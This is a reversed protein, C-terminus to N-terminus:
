PRTTGISKMPKMLDLKGMSLVFIPSTTVLWSSSMDFKKAWGSARAYPLPGSSSLFSPVGSGRIEWLVKEPLRGEDTIITSSHVGYAMPWSRASYSCRVPTCPNMQPILLKSWNPTSNPLTSPFFTLFCSESLRLAPAAIEPNLGEVVRKSLFHTLNLQRYVDHLWENKIYTGLSPEDARDLSTLQSHRSHFELWPFFRDSPHLRCASHEMAANMRIVIYSM